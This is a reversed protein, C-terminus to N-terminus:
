LKATLLGWDRNDRVTGLQVTGIGSDWNWQWNWQGSHRRQELAQWQEMRMVSEILRGEPEYDIWEVPEAEENDGGESRVFQAILFAFPWETFRDVKWNLINLNM